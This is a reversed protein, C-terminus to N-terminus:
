HKHASASDAAAGAERDKDQVVVTVEVKGAKEFTLTLPFKDGAQLPRSLGLLMVHYSDGPKLSVKAAPKIEISSVERMKMVDGVMTMSHLEASKALPSAVATLKDGNKGNNEITMYAVGSPQGPVTSRAFPHGIRLDGVTFGHAAAASSFVLAAALISFSRLSMPNRSSIPTFPLRWNLAAQRHANLTQEVAESLDM